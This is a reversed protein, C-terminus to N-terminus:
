HQAPQVNFLHRANITGTQRHAHHCINRCLVAPRRQLRDNSQQGILVTFRQMAEQEKKISEGVEGGLILNKANSKM